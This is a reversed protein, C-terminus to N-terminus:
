RFSRLEGLTQDGFLAEVRHGGLSVPRVSIAYVAVQVPEPLIRICGFRQGVKSAKWRPHPTVCVHETEHAPQAIEVVSENRALSDAKVSEVQVAQVGRDAGHQGVQVLCVRLKGTAGSLSVGAEVM